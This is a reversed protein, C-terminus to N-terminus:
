AQAAEAALILLAKQMQTIMEDEITRLVIHTSEEGGVAGAAYIKGAKASLGRVIQQLKIGIEGATPAVDKVEILAARREALQIEALEAKANKERASAADYSAPSSFSEGAQPDIPVADIDAELQKPPSEAALAPVTRQHRNRMDQAPDHTAAALAEFTPRHILLVKGIQRTPLQGRKSLSRIRKSIAQQSVGREKALATVSIWDPDDSRATAVATAM